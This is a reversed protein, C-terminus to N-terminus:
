SAGCYDFWLSERVLASSEAAEFTQNRLRLPLVQGLVNRGSEDEEQGTEAERVCCKSREIDSGFWEAAGAHRLGADALQMSLMNCAGKPVNSYRVGM